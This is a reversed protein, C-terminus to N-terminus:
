RGRIEALSDMMAQQRQADTEVVSFVIGADLNVRFRVEIGQEEADYLLLGRGFLLGRQEAPKGLVELVTDETDGPRIGHLFRGEDDRRLLRILRGQWFTFRNRGYSWVEVGLGRSAKIARGERDSTGAALDFSTLLDRRAEPEGLRAQVQQPTMGLHVRMGHTPGHRVLGNAIGLERVRQEEPFRRMLKLIAPDDPNDGLSELYLTVLQDHGHASRNSGYVLEMLARDALASYTPRFRSRLEAALVPELKLSRILEPALRGTTTAALYDRYVALRQQDTAAKEQRARLRTREDLKDELPNQLEDRSVGLQVLEAEVAAVFPDNPVAGALIKKTRLDLLYPVADAAWQRAARRVARIRLQQPVWTAGTDAVAWLARLPVEEAHDLERSLADLRAGPETGLGNLTGLLWVGSAHAREVARPDPELKLLQQELSQRLLPEREPGNRKQYPIKIKTRWLRKDDSDLLKLHGVTKKAYQPPLLLFNVDTKPRPFELELTAALGSEAIQEAGLGHEASTVVFGQKRLVRAAVEARASGVGDLKNVPQEDLVLSVVVVPVRKAAEAGSGAALLMTLLLVVSRLKDM